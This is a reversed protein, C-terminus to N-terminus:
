WSQWSRARSPNPFGALVGLFEAEFPQPVSGEFVTYGTARMGPKVKDLPFFGANSPQKPSAEQKVGTQAYAEAVILLLLISAFSVLRRM